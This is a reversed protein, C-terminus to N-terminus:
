LCRKPFYLAVMEPDLSTLDDLYIDTPGLHHNRKGTVSCYSFSHFLLRHWYIICLLFIEGKKKDQQETKCCAESSNATEEAAAQDDRVEAKSAAVGPGGDEEGGGVYPDKVSCGETDTARGTPGQEKQQSLSGQWQQIPLKSQPFHSLDLSHTRPVPRVVTVRGVRGCSIVPECSSDFSDQRKITRFHSASSPSIPQVDAPTRESPRLQAPM